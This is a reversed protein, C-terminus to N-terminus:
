DFRSVPILYVQGVTCKVVFSYTEGPRVDLVGYYSDNPKSPRSAYLTHRGPTLTREYLHGKAFAGAQMGDIWVAIPINLGLVPSHKLQLLADGARYESQGARSQGATTCWLVSAALVVVVSFWKARKM